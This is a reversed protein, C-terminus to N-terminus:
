AICAGLSQAGPGPVLKDHSEVEEKWCGRGIIRQRRKKKFFWSQNIDNLKRLKTEKLANYKQSSLTISLVLLWVGSAGSAMYWIRVERDPLVGAEAEGLGKSIFLLPSQFALAHHPPIYLKWPYIWACKLYFHFESASNLYLSLIYQILTQRHKPLKVLTAALTKNKEKVM